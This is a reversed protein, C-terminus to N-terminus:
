TARSFQLERELREADDVSIHLADKLRDLLAIQSQTIEGYALAEEVAASYIELGRSATYDAREIDKNVLRSSFREAWRHLPSLFITLLASVVFGIADGLQSSLFMNTGESIVYFFAIFAGALLTNRITSKLRIEIDLMQVKLIGYTMIPIYVLTGGVYVTNVLMPTKTALGTLAALLVATWALDRIGFACVFALAKERALKTTATKVGILSLIFIAIFMIILLLYIPTDPEIHWDIVGFRLLVLLVYAIFGVSYLATRAPVTVLHKLATIPLAHAVFIPYLTLMLVDAAHHVLTFMDDAQPSLNYNILLPIGGSSSLVAINEVLLLVTFRRVVPTSAANKWLFFIFLCSVAATVISVLGWPNIGLL